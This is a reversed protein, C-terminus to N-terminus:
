VGGLRVDGSLVSGAAVHERAGVVCTADLTAFEGIVAGPGIISSRVRAGAEVTAGPLLVANEVVAGAGVSAGADVVSVRLTAGPDVVASPHRWSGDVVGEVTRGTRGGLVDANARLYGEPTGTDIWYADDVLAYLRGAAALAPFTEREVSVRGAPAIRELVTPEVVYVGANVLNSPALDRPPKEVFESVRGDPGVAVVGFRSPDAVTHLAITAEAGRERHFGILATVDLDTVNDGNIVVFTSEAGARAAAFRIAGATDLPESEVSYSVRVGAIVDDPYAETFQDPLYGLALVADTVGHRSLQALVCEIIPAGVLPLLQKPTQYTLPRLRTGEGGVLVVALM